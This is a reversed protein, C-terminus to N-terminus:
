SLHLHLKQVAQRVLPLAVLEVQAEQMTLPM